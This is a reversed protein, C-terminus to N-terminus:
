TAFLSNGKLGFTKLVGFRRVIEIYRKIARKSCVVIFGLAAASLFRSL